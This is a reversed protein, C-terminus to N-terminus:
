PAVGGQTPDVIARAQESRLSDWAAVIARLRAVTEAATEPEPKSDASAGAPLIAATEQHAPSAAPDAGFSTGAARNAPVAVGADTENTTFAEMRLVAQRDLPIVIATDDILRGNEFVYVRPLKAVGPTSGRYWAPPRGSLQTTGTDPDVWQYLRAEGLGPLLVLLSLFGIPLAATRPRCM